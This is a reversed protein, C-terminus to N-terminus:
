KAGELVLTKLHFLVEESTGSYARWEKAREIISTARTLAAKPIEKGERKQYRLAVIGPKEIVFIPIVKIGAAELEERLVREGFPCETLVPRKAVKVAAILVEAHNSKAGPLYRSDDGLDAAWVTAPDWNKKSPHVWCRDHPVYHFKDAAQRCAWSKGSGSVGVVLYIPQREDMLDGKPSEDTSPEAFKPRISELKRKRLTRCLAVYKNHAAVCEDSSALGLRYDRILASVKKKAVQNQYVLFELSAGNDEIPMALNHNHILRLVKM